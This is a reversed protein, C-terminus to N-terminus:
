LDTRFEDWMENFTKEPFELPARHKTWGTFMKNVVWNKMKANGKNMM